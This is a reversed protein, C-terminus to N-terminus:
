DPAAGRGTPAEGNFVWRSSMQSRLLVVEDGEGSKTPRGLAMVGM